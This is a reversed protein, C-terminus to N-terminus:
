KKVTWVTAEDSDYLQIGKELLKDRIQDSKQYDKAKRAQVREEVWQDIDQRKLKKQRLLMDDIQRLFLAPEEQFLALLAGQKQIFETFLEPIGGLYAIIHRSSKKEVCLTNFVRVMEFIQAFMEPTNFDDNLAETIKNQAINLSQTFSNLKDQPAPSSSKQQALHLASYIRALGAIAHDIQSSSFVSPSRYHNILMMYKLIEPHHEKLFSRTSIINGLSKSMKEAGWQILNHHMWYKVFPQSSAGESQAIENEHHPFILDMGGGHIDITQGLLHCSMASCEIHWGPRGRGWPADWAPENDKSPKWLVFDLPNHKHRSVEVRAGAQLEDINKGSLKGYETFQEIAYFVEGSETLYAYNRDILSQIMAIIHPIHNTARPNHTHPKLGLAKYDKEFELIYKHAIDETSVSEKYARQIIKDDIDTYNYVYTVQYQLHELWNRVLNFFIAGRFNGIHLLDYVTPGCVYIYVKGPTLPTFLTKEKTLTNYIKLSM